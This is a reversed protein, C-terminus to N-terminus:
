QSGAEREREIERSRREIEATDLHLAHEFQDIGADLIVSALQAATPHFSDTELQTALEELKKWRSQRMPIKPKIDAGDLGPRGGTSRLRRFLEQRVAYASMPSGGAPITGVREAGLGKEIDDPTIRRRTRPEVVRLRPKAKNTIVLRAM